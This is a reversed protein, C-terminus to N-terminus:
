RADIYSQPIDMPHHEVLEDEIQQIETRYAEEQSEHELREKIKNKSMSLKYASVNKALEEDISPLNWELSCQCHSQLCRNFDPDPESLSLDQETMGEASEGAQLGMVKQRLWPLGTPVVQTRQNHIVERPPERFNDCRPRCLRRRASPPRFRSM